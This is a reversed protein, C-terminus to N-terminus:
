GKTRRRRFARGAKRAERELERWFSEAGKKGGTVSFAAIDRWLCTWFAVRGGAAALREEM